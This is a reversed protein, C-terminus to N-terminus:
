TVGITVRIRTVTDAEVKIRMRMIAMWVMATTLFVRAGLICHQVPLAAELLTM